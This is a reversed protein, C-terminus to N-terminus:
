AWIEKLEARRQVSARRLEQIFESVHTKRPSSRLTGFGVEPLTWSAESGLHHLRQAQIEKAVLNSPVISVSGTENMYEWLPDGINMEVFNRPFSVRAEKFIAEIYERVGSDASPIVWPRDALQSIDSFLPEKTGSVIILRDQFLAEFNIKLFPEDQMRRGFYIDVAGLELGEIAENHGLSNLTVSILPLRNKFRAVSRSIIRSSGVSPGAVVLKRQTEKDASKIEEIGTAIHTLATMAHRYFVEGQGTLGVGSGSRVFLNAGLFRELEKMAQTIAPQSVSLSAAAKRISGAAVVRNFYELQRLTLKATM